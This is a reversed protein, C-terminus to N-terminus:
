APIGERADEKKWVEIELELDVGFRDAVTRQVLGILELVDRARGGKRAVIFNAHAGSVEATGIRRNKLGAADILRGASDGPPNKFVCGASHAGLPQAAKKAAWIDQYRREVEAPDDPMLRLTAGCVIEGKLRTHRYSFGAEDRGLTRLEGSADIVSVDQVVNGIEGWRGGANMRIIGGISGPIGAMCELGALGRRVSELTLRAMDVGAGVRVLVPEHSVAGASITVDPVWQISSFSPADLHVVVGDVGEDDVLLNAGGGLVRMPVNASRCRAIVEALQRTDQPRVFWEASGGLHYRTLPALPKRSQVEGLNASDSMLADATSALSM